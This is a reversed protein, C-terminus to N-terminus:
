SAVAKDLKLSVFLSFEGNLFHIAMLYFFRIFMLCASESDTLIHRTEVASASHLWTATWVQVDLVERVLVEILIFQAREELLM